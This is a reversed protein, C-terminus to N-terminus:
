WRWGPDAWNRDGEPQGITGRFCDCSRMDRQFGVHRVRAHRGNESFRLFDLGAAVLSM